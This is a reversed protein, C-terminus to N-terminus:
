SSPYDLARISNWNFDWDTLKEYIVWQPVHQIIVPYDLVNINNFFMMHQERRTRKVLSRRFLERLNKNYDNFSLAVVKTQRMIAWSRQLPLLLDRVYSKSRAHKVLWSRCGLLAVDKSFNSVYAGSCGIIEDDDVLVLFCGDNVFREKILPIMEKMNVAAPDDGQSEREFFEELQKRDVSLFDRTEIM